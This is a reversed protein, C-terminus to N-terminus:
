AWFYDCQSSIWSGQRRQRWTWRGKIRPRRRQLFQRSMDHVDMAMILEAVAIDIDRDRIPNELDINLDGLLLPKIGKPCATWAEEIDQLAAMVIATAIPPHIGRHRVVERAGGLCTRVVHREAEM